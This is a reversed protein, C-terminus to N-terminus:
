AESPPFLPESKSKRKGRPKSEVPEQGTQVETHELESAPKQGNSSAGAATTEKTKKVAIHGTGQCKPCAKDIHTDPDLSSGVGLCKPCEEFGEDEGLKVHPEEFSMPLQLNTENILLDDKLLESGIILYLPAGKKQWHIARALVKISTEVKFHLSITQKQEENGTQGGWSFKDVKVKIEGKM